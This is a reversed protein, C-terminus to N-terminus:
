NFLEQKADAFYPTPILHLNKKRGKYWVITTFLNPEQRLICDLLWNGLRVRVKSGWKDWKYGNRELM